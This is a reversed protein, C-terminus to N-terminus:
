QWSEQIRQADEDLAGHKQITFKNSIILMKKFAENIDKLALERMKNIGSFKRGIALKDALYILKDFKTMKYDATTHKLIASYIDNDHSGYVYKFWLAGSYQHLVPTPINKTDINHQNMIERHQEYTWYKTFDHVLGAFYAKKSDINNLKAYQQALKAVNKCHVYRKYPLTNFSIVDLYLLNKAIYDQIRKDVLGINGCKYKTSSNLYINNDLIQVNYKKINKHTIKKERKFCVFNVKNALKDMNKWKNLQKINDSGILYFLQDGKKYISDVVEYAYTLRKRKIEFLSIEWTRPMSLELMKIRNKAATYKQNKKFPNKYVPVIIMKDLKLIKFAKKALEVHGIHVPDFSGGFIGIKM